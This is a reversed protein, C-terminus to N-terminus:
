MARAARRERRGARARKRPRDTRLARPWAHVPVNRADDRDRSVKRDMAHGSIGAPAGGARHSSGHSAAPPYSRGTRRDSRM